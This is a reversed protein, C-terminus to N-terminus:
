KVKQYSGDFPFDKVELSRNGNANIVLSNSSSVYMEARYTKGNYNIDAWDDGLAYMTANYKSGNPLQWTMNGSTTISLITGETIITSTRYTNPRTCSWTGVYELNANNIDDDSGCSIFCVSIVSAIMTAWLCYIINKKM